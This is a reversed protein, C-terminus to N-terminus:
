EYNEDMAPEENQQANVEEAPQAINKNRLEDASPDDSPKMGMTQRLENGTVIENRSLKDALDALKGVPIMKLQDIFYMISQGQTVATQSLWKRKMEEVVHAVGVEVIRNNYNNMEEDGATGDLIAKTIGLQSYYMDMLYEIQSMLNNEVSRNLQTIRETGDIYAIGYKSGSLQKEILERRKEAERRRTETKIVYPLQIILDLKGSSSQEDIVDLLNLKRTLRKMTSNPDNMIEYFPNQVIVVVRKPLTVYEHKGTDGNYLEVEVHNPFWQRVIGVRVEMIKYSDTFRPDVDTRSPVIAIHGEQFMSLYMDKKFARPGQDINASHRLCYNIGSKPVDTLYRENEDVYVHRIDIAAMDLAIRNLVSMTTSRESGIRRRQISDPRSYSGGYERGRTPDRSTFADWANQIRTIISAM